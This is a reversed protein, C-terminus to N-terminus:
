YKWIETKGTASNYVMEGWLTNRIYILTKDQFSDWVLYGFKTM